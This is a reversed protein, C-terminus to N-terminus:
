SDQLLVEDDVEIPISEKLDDAKNQKCQQEVHRLRSILWSLALQESLSAERLKRTCAFLEKATEVTM